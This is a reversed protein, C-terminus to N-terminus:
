AEPAAAATLRQSQEDSLAGLTELMADRLPAAPQDASQDIPQDIPQDTPPSPEATKQPAPITDIPTPQM